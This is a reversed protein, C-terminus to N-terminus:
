VAVCRVQTSVLWQVFRAAVRGTRCSRGPNQQLAVADETFASPFSVLVVGTLPWCSADHPLAANAVTSGATCASQAAESYAIVHAAYSGDANPTLVKMQAVNIGEANIVDHVSSVYALSNPTTHLLAAAYTNSGALVAGPPLKASPWTTFPADGGMALRFASSEDVLRDSVIFNEACSDSRVIPVITAAQWTSAAVHPNDARILINDWRTITGSLIDGLVDESLILPTGAPWWPLNFLLVLGVAAAPVTTVEQLTGAGIVAPATPLWGFTMGKIHLAWSANASFLPPAGAVSTPVFTMAQETHQMQYALSIFAAAGSFITNGYGSIIVESAGGGSSTSVKCTFATAMLELVQQNVFAPITAFGLEAALSSATTSSLFWEWFSHTAVRHSCNTGPRIFRHLAVFMSVRQTGHVPCGVGLRRCVCSKRLLLYSYGAIPWSSPSDVLDRSSHPALDENVIAGFGNPSFRVVREILAHTGATVVQGTDYKFSAYPVAASLAQELVNYGISNPTTSVASTVGISKTAQVLRHSPIPWVARSSNGVLGSFTANLRSLATTFISTTGSTDNRVVVTINAAPLQLTPNLAKVRADDWRSISGVFIGALTAADLVIAPQPTSISSATTSGAPGGVNDVNYMCVVAAAVTPLLVVDEGVTGERVNDAAAFDVSGAALEGRGASSGSPSYEVSVGTDLRYLYSARDYLQAPLSAGAGIVTASDSSYVGLPTCLCALVMVGAWM